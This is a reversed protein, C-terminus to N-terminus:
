GACVRDKVMAAPVGAWVQNDGTAKTLVSNAALVCNRGLSSGAVMTSKAALWSGRGVRIAAQRGAEYRYSGDKTGHNGAVVTVYPGLMVEDELTVGERLGHIWSGYGIYVNNGVFVRKLGQLQVSRDVQFDRGVRGLFPRYIAGRLRHGRPTQPAFDTVFGMVKLYLDVLSDLM